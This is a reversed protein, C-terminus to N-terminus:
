FPYWAWFKSAVTSPLCIGLLFRWPIYLIVGTFESPKWSYWGWSTIAPNRGNLLIDPPFQLNSFYDVPHDKQLNTAVPQCRSVIGGDSSHDDSWDYTTISYYANHNRFIVEGLEVSNVELQIHCCPMKSFLCWGLFGKSANVPPLYTPWRRWTSRRCQETVPRLFCRPFRKPCCDDGIVCWWEVGALIWHEVRNTHSAKQKALSLKPQPALVQRFTQAVKKKQFNGNRCVHPIELANRHGTFFGLCPKWHLVFIRSSNKPRKEWRWSTRATKWTNTYMTNWIRVRMWPVLMDGQYPMNSSSKGKGWTPYTLKRSPICIYVGKKPSDTRWRHLFMRFFVQADTTGAMAESTSRLNAVGLPKTM